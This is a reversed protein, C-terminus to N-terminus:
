RILCSADLSSERGTLATEPPSEAAAPVSLEVAGRIDGRIDLVSLDLDARFGDVLKEGWAFYGHDICRIDTITWGASVAAEVLNRMTQDPQGVVPGGRRAKSGAQYAFGTEHGETTFVEGFRTGQPDVDLLPDAALARAQRVDVATPGEGACGAVAGIAVGLVALSRLRLKVGQGDCGREECAM